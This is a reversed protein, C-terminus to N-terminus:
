RWKAPDNCEKSSIKKSRLSTEYNTGSCAGIKSGWESGDKPQRFKAPMKGEMSILCVKTARMAEKICEDETINYCKRFYQAENCFANPLATKMSDVFLKKDIIVEKEKAHLSVSSIVLILALSFTKM